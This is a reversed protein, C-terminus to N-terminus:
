AMQKAESYADFVARALWPNEELLSKKIAVPHMTPFIGTRTFYAQETKRFDPFLRAVKPHGEM